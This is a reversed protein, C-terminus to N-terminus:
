VKIFPTAETCDYDAATYGKFPPYKQGQYTVDPVHPGMFYPNTECEPSCSQDLKSKCKGDATCGGVYRSDGNEDFEDPHLCQRDCYYGNLCQYEISGGIVNINNQCKCTDDDAPTCVGYTLRM